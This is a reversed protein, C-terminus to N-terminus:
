VFLLLFLALLRGVSLAPVNAASQFPDKARLIYAMDSASLCHM